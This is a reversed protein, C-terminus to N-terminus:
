EPRWNSAKIEPDFPIQEFSVATRKILRGAGWCRSCEAKWEFFTNHHYDDLERAETYGRGNCVPCLVIEASTYNPQTM